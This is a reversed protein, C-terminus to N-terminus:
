YPIDARSVSVTQPFVPVHIIIYLSVDEIDGQTKVNENKHQSEENPQFASFTCM